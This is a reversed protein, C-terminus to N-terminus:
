AVRFTRCNIVPVEPYSTVRAWVTYTGPGLVPGNVMVGIAAGLVTPAEWDLEAPRTAGALIALEVDDTVAVGDVTVEVPQFEVTERPYLNSM